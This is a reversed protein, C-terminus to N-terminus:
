DKISELFEKFIERQEDTLSTDGDQELDEDFLWRFFNPDNEAEVEVFDFLSLGSKNVEKLHSKKEPNIM